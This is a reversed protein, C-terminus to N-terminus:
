NWGDEFGITMPFTQASEYHIVYVDRGKFIDKYQNDSLNNINEEILDELINSVESEPLTTIKPSLAVKLFDAATYFYIGLQEVLYPRNWQKVLKSYDSSTLSTFVLTLLLMALVLPRFVEKNSRTKELEHFYGNRKLQRILIVLIITPILFILSKIDLTNTVSSGLDKLQKVQKLLSLSLFSAYHKFYLYNLSSIVGFMLSLILYLHNRRKHSLLMGIISGLIIIPISAVIPKWYVTIGMTLARLVFDNFIGGIVLVLLIINNKFKFKM